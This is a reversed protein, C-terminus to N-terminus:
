ERGSAFAVSNSYVEVAVVVVASEPEEVSTAAKTEPMIAVSSIKTATTTTVIVQQQQKSCFDFLFFIMRWNPVSIYTLFYSQKRSKVRCVDKM